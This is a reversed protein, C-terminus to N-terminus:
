LTEVRWCQIEWLKDSELIGWIQAFDFFNRFRAFKVSFLRQEDFPGYCDWYRRYCSQNKLCFISRNKQLSKQSSNKGLVAKEPLFHQEIVLLWTIEHFPDLPSRQGSPLSNEALVHERRPFSPVGGSKSSKKKSFLGHFRKEVFSQNINSKNSGLFYNLLKAQLEIQTRIRPYIFGSWLWNIPVFNYVLLAEGSIGRGFFARWFFRKIKPRLFGDQSRRLGGAGIFWTFIDLPQLSGILSKALPQLSRPWIAALLSSLIYSLLFMKQAKTNPELIARFQAKLWSDVVGVTWVADIGWNKHLKKGSHCRM